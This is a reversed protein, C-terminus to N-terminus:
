TTEFFQCNVAGQGSCHQQIIAQYEQLNGQGTVGTSGCSCSFAYYWGGKVNKMAEKTLLNDKFSSLTKM